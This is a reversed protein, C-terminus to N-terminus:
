LGRFPSRRSELDLKEREGALMSSPCLQVESGSKYAKRRRGIIAGMVSSCFHILGAILSEQVAAPIGLSMLSRRAAVTRCGPPLTRSTTTMSCIGSGARAMTSWSGVGDRHCVGGFNALGRGAAGGVLTTGSKVCSKASPGTGQEGHRNRAAPLLARRCTIAFDVESLIRCTTPAM